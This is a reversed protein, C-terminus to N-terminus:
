QLRILIYKTQLQLIPVTRTLATTTTTTTLNLWKTADCPKTRQQRCWIATTRCVVISVDWCKVPYTTTTFHCHAASIVLMHSQSQHWHTSDITFRWNAKWLLNMTSEYNGQLLFTTNNNLYSIFAHWSLHM